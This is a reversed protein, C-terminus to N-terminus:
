RQELRTVATRLECQRGPLRVRRHRAGGDGRRQAPVRRLYRRARAHRAIAVRGDARVPEPAHRAAVRRARLRDSPHIGGHDDRVHQDAARRRGARHRARGPPAPVRQVRRLLGAGWVLAGMILLFVSTETSRTDQVFVQQVFTSVSLNLDHLRGVISDSALNFRLDRVAPLRRRRRWQLAM